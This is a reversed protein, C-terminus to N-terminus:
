PSPRLAPWSQVLTVVPLQRDDIAKLLGRARTGGARPGDPGQFWGLDGEFLIQQRPLWFVVYEDTHHSDAGIDIAVLENTADAFARQGTFPEVAPARGSRALAAPPALFPGAAIQRVLAPGLPRA